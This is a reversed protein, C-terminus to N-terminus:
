REFVYSEDMRRFLSFMQFSELGSGPGGKDKSFEWVVVWQVGKEVRFGEKSEWFM